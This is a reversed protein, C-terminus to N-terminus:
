NESFIVTNPPIWMKGTKINTGEDVLGKVWAGSPGVFYVAKPNYVSKAGTVCGSVLSMVGLILLMMLKKSQNM